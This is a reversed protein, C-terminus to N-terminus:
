THKIVTSAFSKLDAAPEGHCEGGRTQIKKDACLRFLLELWLFKLM